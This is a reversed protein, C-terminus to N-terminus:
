KLGFAYVHADHTVVYVKGLAVVPESFHVWDPIADGSDFLQKGTVADYAYLKLNSVPTSRLVASVPWPLRPSHLKKYDSTTYNQMAQGGTSIAYVVGNAVVPPDPMIM